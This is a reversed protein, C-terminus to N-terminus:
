HVQQYQNWQKWHWYQYVTLLPTARIYTYHHTVSNNEEMCAGIFFEMADDFITSFEQICKSLSSNWFDSNDCSLNPLQTHTEEKKGGEM